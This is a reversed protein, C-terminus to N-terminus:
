AASTEPLDTEIEPVTQVLAWRGDERRDSEQRAPLPRRGGHLAPQRRDQRSDAVCVPEPFRHDPFELALYQDVDERTLFELALEQCVGRAQLDLAVPLFPHKNLLMESSRYTAVGAAADRVDEDRHVRHHRRDVHRGLASRRLLAGAPADTSIEHLFAALERKM